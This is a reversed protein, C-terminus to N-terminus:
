IAPNVVVARDGLRGPRDTGTGSALVEGVAPGALGPVAQPHGRLHGILHRKARVCAPSTRDDREAQRCDSIGVVGGHVQAAFDGRPFAPRTSSPVLACHSSQSPQFLVPRAGARWPGAPARRQYPPKGLRPSHSRERCGSRSSRAAPPANAADITGGQNRLLRAAIALGLGAGDARSNRTSDARVTPEFVRPLLDPPIGPGDDIVRVFVNDADEGCTVEVTGGLPTHRLANDIVNALAREFGDHDIRVSHGTDATVQLKVGREDAAFEFAATADTVADALDTTQLRPRNDFDARAYDFLGTVLRDIQQAKARARQLREGPDGIGAAIADLYGRLSFLPTRLDHAISSVLLRRETELRAEQEATQALRAGMGAIARAVNEVERIPSTAPTEIPDGGAIADVQRNLRRLPVVFWRSAAWMLLAGGVLLAALGAALAALMRHSSDLPSPYLDLVLVEGSLPFLYTATPQAASGGPAPTTAPALEKSVYIVRKSGPSVMTLQASLGLTTFEGTLAQQWRTTEAQTAGHEVYTAADALGHALDIRQNRAEVLYGATAAGASLLLLALVSVALAVRAPARIRSM